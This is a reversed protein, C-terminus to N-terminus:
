NGGLLLTILAGGGLFLWKLKAERRAKKEAKDLSKELSAILTEQKRISEKLKEVEAMRITMATGLSDGREKEKALQEETKELLRKQVGLEERLGDLQVLAERCAREISLPKDQAFCGGPLVVIIVIIVPIIRKIM